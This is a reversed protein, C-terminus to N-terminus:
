DVVWGADPQVNNKAQIADVRLNFAVSADQVENGAELPLAATVTVHQTAMDPLISSVQLSGQQWETLSKTVSDEGVTVTVQLADALAESGPLADIDLIWYADAGENWVNISTSESDGPLVMSANIPVSDTDTEASLTLFASSISQTDPATVTDTLSAGTSAVVGGTIVTGVAVAVLGILAARKTRDRRVETNQVNETTM